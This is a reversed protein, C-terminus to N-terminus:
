ILGKQAMSSFDNGTVVLHDLVSVEILALAERLRQTITVDANSPSAVGSPHNHAFIVHAAGRWLCEKVVERPYVSSGTVTGRFLEEAAILRFRADLFLVTFTEYDRGAYMARLYEAAMTPNSLDPRAQNLDLLAYHGAVEAVEARTAERYRTGSKVMLTQM